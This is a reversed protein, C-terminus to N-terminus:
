GKKFVVSLNNAPMEVIEELLMNEGKAVLIVDELNRVGWEANQMRLSQDFSENSPATHENNRKYPGYLYLIGGESLIKNAVKMLQVCATWPSIHIMNICVMAVINNLAPKEETLYNEINLSIPPYINTLQEHEIWSNISAIAEHNIDSPQWKIGPLQSAFFVAHQGTGSAIELITGSNPLVRKLVELIPTKNRECAPAYKRRDTM